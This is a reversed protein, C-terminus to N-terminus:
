SMSIRCALSGVRRQCRARGLMRAWQSEVVAVASSTLRETMADIM